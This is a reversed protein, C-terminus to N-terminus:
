PNVARPHADAEQALLDTWADTAPGDFLWGGESCHVSCWWEDPHHEGDTFRLLDTKAAAGQPGDLCLFLWGIPSQTDPDLDAGSAGKM